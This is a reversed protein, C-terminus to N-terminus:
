KGQNGELLLMFSNPLNKMNFRKVSELLFQRVFNFQEENPAMKKLRSELQNTERDRLMILLNELLVVDDDDDLLVTSHVSEDVQSKERIQEEQSLIAERPLIKQLFSDQIPSPARVLFASPQIKPRLEPISFDDVTDRNIFIENITKKMQISHKNQYLKELLTDLVEPKRKEIELSIPIPPPQTHTKYFDDREKKKKSEIKIFKDNRIDTSYEFGKSKFFRIMSDYYIPPISSLYETCEEKKPIPNMIKLLHPFNWPLVLIRVSRESIQLFAFPTQNEFDHVIYEGTLDSERNERLLLIVDFDIFQRNQSAFDSFISLNPIPQTLKKCVYIPFVKEQPNVSTNYPYPWIIQGKIISKAQISRQDFVLSYNFFTPTTSMKMNLTGSGSYQNYFLIVDFEIQKLADSFDTRFRKEYESRQHEARFVQCFFLNEDARFLWENNAQFKYFDKSLTSGDTVFIISTNFQKLLPNGDDTKLKPLFFGPISNADRLKNLQILGEQVTENFDGRPSIELNNITASLTNLMNNFMDQNNMQYPVFRDTKPRGDYDTYTFLLTFPPQKRDILKLLENFQAKAVVKAFSVFPFSTEETARSMRATNDILVLIYREGM